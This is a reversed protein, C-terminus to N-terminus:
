RQLCKQEDMFDVARQVEEETLQTWANEIEEEKKREEEALETTTSFAVDLDTQGEERKELQARAQTEVAVRRQSNPFSATRRQQIRRTKQAKHYASEIVQVVAHDPRRGREGEDDDSIVILKATITAVDDKKESKKTM